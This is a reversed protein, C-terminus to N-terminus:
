KVRFAYQRLVISNNGTHIPVSSRRSGAIGFPKESKESLKFTSQKKLRKELSSWKAHQTQFLGTASPSSGFTLTIGTLAKDSCIVTFWEKPGDVSYHHPPERPFVTTKYIRAEGDNPHLLTATTGDSHVVYVFLPITDKPEVYIEIQDHARLRDRKKAWQSKRIQSRQTPEESDTDTDRTPIRIGISARIAGRKTIEPKSREVAAAPNEAAAPEAIAAPEEVATPQGETATSQRETATPKTEQAASQVSGCSLLALTLALSIV